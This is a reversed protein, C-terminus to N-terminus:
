NNSACFFIWFFTAVFSSPPSPYPRLPLAVLFLVDLLKKPKVSYILTSPLSVSFASLIKNVIHNFIYQRYSSTSFSLFLTLCLTIQHISLFSLNLASLSYLFRFLFSLSVQKCLFHFLSFSIFHFISVFLFSLLTSLIALFVNTQWSFKSFM